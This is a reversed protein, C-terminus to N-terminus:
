SARYNQVSRLDAIFKLGSQLWALWTYVLIILKVKLYNNTSYIYQASPKTLITWYIDGVQFCIYFLSIQGQGKFKVKVHLNGINGSDKLLKWDLSIYCIVALQPFTSFCHCSTYNNMQKLGTNFDISLASITVYFTWCRM